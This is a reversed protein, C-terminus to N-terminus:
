IKTPANICQVTVERQCEAAFHLRYFPPPFSSFFALFVKLVSSRFVLLILSSSIVGARSQLLPTNLYDPVRVAPIPMAEAMASSFCIYPLLLVGVFSLWLCLFVFPFCNGRACACVKIRARQRTQRERMLCIPKQATYKYANCAYTSVRDTNHTM